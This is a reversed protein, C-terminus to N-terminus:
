GIVKAFQPIIEPNEGIFKIIKRKANNLVGHDTQKTKRIAVYNSIEFMQKETFKALPAISKLFDFISIVPSNDKQDVIEHEFSEKANGSQFDIFLSVKNWKNTRKDKAARKRFICINNRIGNIAFTSFKIDERTYKWVSNRLGELCFQYMDPMGEVMVKKKGMEYYVAPIYQKILFSEVSDAYLMKSKNDSYINGLVKQAVDQNHKLFKILYFFSFKYGVNFQDLFNKKNKDKRITNIKDRCLLVIRNGEALKNYDVDM